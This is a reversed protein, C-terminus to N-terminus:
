GGAKYIRRGALRSGSQSSPRQFEQAVLYEAVDKRGALRARHEAESLAAAWAEDLEGMNAQSPIMLASDDGVYGSASGISM